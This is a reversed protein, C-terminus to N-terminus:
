ANDWIQGNVGHRRGAADAAAAPDNKLGDILASAAAKSTAEAPNGGLRRIYALQAPTAPQADPGPANLQAEFERFADAARGNNAHWQGWRDTEIGSHIALIQETTIGSDLLKKASATIEYRAM